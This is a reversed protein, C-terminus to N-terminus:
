IKKWPDYVRRSVGFSGDKRQLKGRLWPQGDYWFHDTSEVQYVKGNKDKVLMGVTIGWQATQLNHKEFDLSNLRHRLTAREQEIEELRTM